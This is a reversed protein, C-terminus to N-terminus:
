IKQDVVCITDNHAGGHPVLLIELTKFGYKAGVGGSNWGFSIVIGGKKVIRQLESRAKTMPNSQTDTMTCFGRVKKYCESVQRLSYPPDFLVCDVSENAFRKLFDMYDM